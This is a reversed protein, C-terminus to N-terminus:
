PGRMKLEHERHYIVWDANEALAERGLDRILCRAKETDGIELLGDLRRLATGYLSAMWRYSRSQKEFLRKEQYEHCLGALVGGLAIIMIVGHTWLGHGLEDAEDGAQFLRIAQGVTALLSVGVFWWGWHRCLRGRKHDRKTNKAFFKQQDSMWRERVQRLREPGAEAVPAGCCSADHEGSLVTWSRLASRIWDLQSRYSGLYFDAANERLGALKWFLHVRLAEALARDDLYRNYVRWRRALRVVGYGLAFLVPYALLLWLNGPALHAYCEFSVVTLFILGLITILLRLSNRQWRTALQDALAFRDLVFRVHAPLKAQEQEPFVFSKADAMGKALKPGIKLADRNFRDFNGAIEGFSEEHQDPLRLVAKTSALPEADQARRAPIHYLPGTEPEDLHGAEEALSFPVGHLHAQIVQWTHNDDSKVGNWIGVLIQCHRAVYRSVAAFCEQRWEASAHLEERSLGDPLPLCIQRSARGLLKDFEARDGGRQQEDDCLGDPWPLVVALGVGPTEVAVRAGLRDAGEALSTLLLLPTHLYAKQKDQLFKRLDKEVRQIDEPHLERHGTIGIILPVRSSEM